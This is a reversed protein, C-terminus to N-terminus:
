VSKEVTIVAEKEEQKSEVKEESTKVIEEKADTETKSKEKVEHKSETKQKESNKSVKEEETKESKLEKKVTKAKKETEPKHLKEVQMSRIECVRVPYIKKLHYRLADQMKHSILDNTFNDFSIDNIYKTLFEHANKRIKAAVSGSTSLRTVIFPKIRINKKDSTACTFSMDIKSINRRVMRKVSSQVMAYGVFNTYAKNNEVKVVEFIINVNQRKVDSILNMLNQKISKGIMQQPEYVLTEGLIVNRFLKPAILPYWHKKLVKAKAM